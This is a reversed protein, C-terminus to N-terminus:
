GAREAANRRVLRLSWVPFLLYTGAWSLGGAFLWAPATDMDDIGMVIGPGSVLGLLMVVGAVVGAPPLRATRCFIVLWGGILAFGFSSVLGALYFGTADSLVLVTGVVTLVAGVAALGLGLPHHPRLQWALALSLVGYAANGVDNIAGFPEGITYFVILCACTLLGVVGHTTALPRVGPDTTM